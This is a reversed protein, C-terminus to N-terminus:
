FGFYVEQQRLKVLNRERELITKGQYALAGEKRKGEGKERKLCKEGGEEEEGKSAWPCVPFLDDSGTCITTTDTERGLYKNKM